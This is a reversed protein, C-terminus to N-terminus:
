RGTDILVTYINGGLTISTRGDHNSKSGTKPDIAWGTAHPHCKSIRPTCSFWYLLSITYGEYYSHRSINVWRVATAGMKHYVKM